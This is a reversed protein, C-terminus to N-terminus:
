REEQSHFLERFYRAARRDEARKAAWVGMVGALTVLAFCAAGCAFGIAFVAHQASM